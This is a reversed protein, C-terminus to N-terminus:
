GRDGSEYTDADRYGSEWKDHDPDTAPYPNDTIEKEAYFAQQGEGYAGSQAPDSADFIIDAPVTDPVKSFHEHQYRLVREKLEDIVQLHYDDCGLSKCHVKYFELMAPVAQDQARFVIADHVVTGDAKTIVGTYKKVILM